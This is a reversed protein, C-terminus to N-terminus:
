RGDLISEGPGSALLPPLKARCQAEDCARIVQLQKRMAGLVRSYQGAHVLNDYQQPDVAMDYLEEDGNALHVYLYRDSRVGLAYRVDADGPDEASLPEGSEDTVRVTRRPGTETLVARQWGVDGNRAVALLSQGDVPAGPLVRTFDAITPAFDISLFPDYRIQGAPIGPGRVLLPTHISPEHPLTKGTRIGQEGLFYGNDSTFMVLTDELEGTRELAAVTDAVERDVISLAEARQRTVELLAAKESENL